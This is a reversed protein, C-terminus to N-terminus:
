LGSDKESPESVTTSLYSIVTSIEFNDGSMYLFVSFNETEWLQRYTLHGASIALGYDDPSDKYLSDSWEVDQKKPEGYKKTLGDALKEYDEIYLNKNTHNEKLVYGVSFLEDSDNFGYVLDSSLGAVKLKNYFLYTGSDESFEGESEIKQVEDKLMGFRVNRVDAIATQSENGSSTEASPSCGAMGLVLVLCVAIIKKMIFGM